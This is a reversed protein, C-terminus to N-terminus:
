ICLRKNGGSKLPNFQESLKRKSKCEECYWNKKTKVCAYHFWEIKCNTGDCAIMPLFSPRKCICDIKWKWHEGCWKKLFGNWTTHCSWISSWITTLKKLFDNDKQVTILIFDDTKAKTWIYFYHKEFGIVLMQHQLQCYYPHGEDMCGDSFVPFGPDSNWGPLGNRYKHPYKIELLTKGHCSCSLVGDPSAGLHPLDANVNLGTQSVSTNEHHLWFYETFAHFALPEM